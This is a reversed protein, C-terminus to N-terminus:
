DISITYKEFGDAVPDTSMRFYFTTLKPIGTNPLDQRPVLKAGYQFEM